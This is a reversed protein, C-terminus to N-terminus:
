SMIRRLYKVFHDIVFHALIQVNEMGKVIMSTNQFRPVQTYIKSNRM